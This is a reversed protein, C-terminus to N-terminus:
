VWTITGMTAIQGTTHTVDAAPSTLTYDTIGTANSIAARLHSLLTTVGPEAERRLLDTLEATIAARTATTDPVPHITFNIPVAVPAVVTVIATVPRVANLHAQVTAVEGSDPIPSGADDDRMFRVTVNGAGLERPYVWARTVGAVEKTWAIYDASAGGHPASRMRELVRERYDELDEVDSGGVLGGTNVTALSDVGAIPSELSLATGAICNGNEAAVSATVAATATGSAITVDANVTYATSDSRLVITGAPIVTGNTGSFIVPGGAFAPPKLNIGFLAGQRLLFEEESQDAFLQRALFDLHGHLMHAAGAMVRSFVYVLSRRLVAGVLPLRSLFDSQIRDVLETLTPRTFAM